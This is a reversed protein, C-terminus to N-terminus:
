KETTRFTGSFGTRNKGWGKDVDNKNPSCDNKKRLGVTSSSQPDTKIIFDENTIFTFSDLKIFEGM